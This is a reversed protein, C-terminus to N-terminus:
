HSIHDHIDLRAFQLLHDSVTALICLTQQKEDESLRNDIFVGVPRKMYAIMDAPGGQDLKTAKNEFMLARTRGAHSLKIARGEEALLEWEGDLSIKYKDKNGKDGFGDRDFEKTAEVIIKQGNTIKKVIKLTMKASTTVSVMESSHGVSIGHSKSHQLGSKIECVREKVIKGDSGSKTQVLHVSTFSPEFVYLPEADTREEVRFIAVKSTFLSEGPIFALKITGL